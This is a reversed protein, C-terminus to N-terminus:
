SPRRRRELYAEMESISVDITAQETPKAHPRARRLVEIAEDLKQRKGLWLGLLLAPGVKTSDIALAARCTEIVDDGRGLADYSLTLMQLIPVSHEVPVSVACRELMAIATEHEGRMQLLQAQCLALEVDDPAATRASTVVAMARDLEGAKILAQAHKAVENMGPM